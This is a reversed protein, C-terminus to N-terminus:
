TFSLIPSTPPGCSLFLIRQDLIEQRHRLTMIICQIICQISICQILICRIVWIKKVYSTEM